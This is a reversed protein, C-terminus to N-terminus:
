LKNVLLSVATATDSHDWIEATIKTIAINNFGITIIDSVARIIFQLEGKLWIYDHM